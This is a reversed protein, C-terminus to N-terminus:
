TRDPSRLSEKMEVHGWDLPTAPKAALAAREGPTMERVFAEALEEVAWHLDVLAANGGGHVDIAHNYAIRMEEAADRLNYTPTLQEFSAQFGSERIPYIGGQVDFACRTEEDEARLGEPTQYVTGPPFTIDSISTLLKKRYETFGSQALAAAATLPDIASLPYNTTTM